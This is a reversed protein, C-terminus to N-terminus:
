APAGYMRMHYLCTYEAKGHNSLIELRVRNVAEQDQQKVPFYQIQRMLEDSGVALGSIQYEGEVLVRQEMVKGQAAGEAGGVAKDGALWGVVRFRHPASGGQGPSIAPPVHQMVFTEPRVPQRLRLTAYGASANMAWCNGLMAGSPDSWWNGSSWDVKLLTSPMLQVPKTQLSIQCRVQHLVGGGAKCPNFSPSHYEVGAGNIELLWDVQGLRQEYIKALVTKVTQELQDPDPKSGFPSFSLAPRNSQM